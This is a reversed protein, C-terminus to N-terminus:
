VPTLWHHKDDLEGRLTAFFRKQIKETVPGRAGSGVQRRDVSRVPLVEAATGCLFVESSTYLMERPIAQEVTPIDLDKAVQLICRRTYGALISAGVPPTLLRGDYLLFINQGSGESVYGTYDLAIGDAYGHQRAEAVILMSNVYNGTCKAMAPHTDPAMRRRSSVCVDVGQALSEPTFHGKWPFTAIALEVPNDGPHVGLAGYGSFALPRIYCADHGNERVTARIADSIQSETWRLQLNILKCSQFLRAVHEKLGMVATGQVTKYARIGEFVGSGYHLAHTLVHVTAKEWPVLEGNFWIVKSPELKM